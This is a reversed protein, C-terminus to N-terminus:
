HKAVEATIETKAAVAEGVTTATALKTAAVVVPPDPPALPGPTSSSFASMVVGILTIAVQAGGGIAIATQPSVLGALSIGGNAILNLVTLVLKVWLAIAPSIQM